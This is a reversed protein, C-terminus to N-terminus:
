CVSNKCSKKFGLVEGIKLFYSRKDENKINTMNMREFNSRSSDTGKKVSNDFYKKSLHSNDTGYSSVSFACFLKLSECFLSQDNLNLSNSYSYSM